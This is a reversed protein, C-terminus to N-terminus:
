VSTKLYRSIDAPLEYGDKGIIKEFEPYSDSGTWPAGVCLTIKAEDCDNVMGHPWSGDILFPYETSPIPINGAKTIFYLTDSRGNIVMRFKHQRTGLLHRECDIHENNRAHPLTKLIMVRARGGMWSFVNAELYRRISEPAFETWRFNTESIGHSEPLRNIGEYTAEGDTTMIPLMSCSRYVDWVWNEPLVKELEVRMTKRDPLEIKLSAFLFDQNV